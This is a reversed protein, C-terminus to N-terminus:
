VIQNDTESVTKEFDIEFDSSSCVLYPTKMLITIRNAGTSDSKTKVGRLLLPALPLTMLKLRQVLIETEPTM